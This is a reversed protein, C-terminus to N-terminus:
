HKAAKAGHAAPSVRAVPGSRHAPASKAKPAPRPAAKPAAKPAAAKARAPAAKAGHPAAAATAGRASAAKPAQVRAITHTSASPLAAPVPAPVALPSDDALDSTVSLSAVDHEVAAPSDPAKVAPVETVSREPETGTSDRRSSVRDVSTLDDLSSSSLQAAVSSLTEGRRAGLARLTMTTGGLGTALALLAVLLSRGPVKRKVCAVGQMLTTGTRARSSSAATSDMSARSKIAPQSAAGKNPAADMRSTMPAKTPSAMTKTAMVQAEELGTGHDPLGGGAGTIEINRGPEAIDRNM